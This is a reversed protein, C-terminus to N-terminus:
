EMVANKHHEVLQLLFFLHSIGLDAHSPSQDEFSLPNINIFINVHWLNLYLARYLITIQTVVTTLPIYVTGIHM